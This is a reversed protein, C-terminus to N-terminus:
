QMSKIELILYEYYGVLVEKEGLAVEKEVLRNNYDIARNTADDYEQSTDRPMRSDAYEISAKESEIQKRLNEARTSLLEPAFRMLAETKGNDKSRRIVRDAATSFAYDSIGGSLLIQESRVVVDQDLDFRSDLYISLVEIAYNIQAQDLRSDLNDRERELESIAGIGMASAVLLITVLVIFNRKM